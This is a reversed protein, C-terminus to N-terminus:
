KARAYDNQLQVRVRMQEDWSAKDGPKWGSAAFTPGAGEWAKGDAKKTSKSGSTSEGCASVAVAVALLAAVRWVARM